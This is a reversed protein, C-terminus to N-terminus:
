TPSPIAYVTRETTIQGKYQWYTHAIYDTQAKKNRQTEFLFYAEELDGLAEPIKAQEIRLLGIFMRAWANTPDINLAYLIDCEALHLDPTPLMLSRARGRFAYADADAPLLTTHKNAIEFMPKADSVFNCEMLGEYAVLTERLADANNPQMNLATRLESLADHHALKQNYIRAIQVHLQADAKKNLAARYFDIAKWHEGALCWSEAIRQLTEATPQIYKSYEEFRKAAMHFKGAAIAAEAEAKLLEPSKTPM